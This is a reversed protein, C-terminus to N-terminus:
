KNSPTDPIKFVGTMKTKKLLGSSIYQDKGNGALVDRASFM